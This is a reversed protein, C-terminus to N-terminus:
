AHHGKDIHSGVQGVVGRIFQAVLLPAATSAARGVVGAFSTTRTESGRRSLRHGLYAGILAALGLRAVPGGLAGARSDKPRGLELLRSRAEQVSMLNRNTTGAM